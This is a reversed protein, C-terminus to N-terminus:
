LNKKWYYNEKKKKKQGEKKHFMAEVENIKSWILNYEKLKASFAQILRWSLSIQSVSQVYANYSKTLILRKGDGNDADADDIGHGLTIKSAKALSCRVLEM